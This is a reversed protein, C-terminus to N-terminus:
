LSNHFVLYFSILFGKTVPLVQVHPQSQESIEALDDLIFVVLAFAKLLPPIRLSEVHRLILTLKLFSCVTNIAVQMGDIAFTVKNLSSLMLPCSNEGTICFLSTPPFIALIYETWFPVEYLSPVDEGVYAEESSYEVNGAM